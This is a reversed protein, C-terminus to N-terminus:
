RRGLITKLKYLAEEHEKSWVNAEQMRPKAKEEILRTLIKLLNEIDKAAEHSDPYKSLEGSPDPGHYQYDHLDLATSIYHTYNTYGAEELLRALPKLKSSSTYRNKDAM